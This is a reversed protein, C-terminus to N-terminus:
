GNESASEHLAYLRLTPNHFGYSGYKPAIEKVLKFNQRIEDSAHSRNKRRINQVSFRKGALDTTLLYDFHSSRLQDVLSANDDDIVRRIPVSVFKLPVRSLYTTGGVTVIKAGPILNDAMWRTMQKRTDNRIESALQLSRTLPLIILCVGLALQPVWASDGLSKVVAFNLGSCRRQLLPYFIRIFEAALLALFPICAIIYRDPQPPPKSRAWEAPLYFLLILGVFFLEKSKWRCLFVGAAILAAAVPLIGLGPIISRSFHFMWLQSWPDISLGMHGRMAHRSESQLGEVTQLIGLPNQLVYPVALVFGLPMLFLAAISHCLARWDPKLRFRDSILWPASLVIVFSVVGTYKSGFAFGALLGAAYIYRLKKQELYAFVALVCALVFTLFLVDEKMYRSNTVHIPCVALLFAAIVGTCRGSFRRGIAYVLYISVVGCLANVVRGALLNRVLASHPYFGCLKLVSSVGWSLYLLFPPQLAFQPDLSERAMMRRLFHAKQLEDPHYGTPLGFDVGYIRLAAGLLISSSVLLLAARKSLDLSQQGAGNLRRAFLAGATLCLIILTCHAVNWIMPNQSFFTM